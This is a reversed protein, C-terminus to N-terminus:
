KDVFQFNRREYLPRLGARTLNGFSSNKKGADIKYALRPTVM